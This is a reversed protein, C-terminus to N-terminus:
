EKLEIRPLKRVDHWVMHVTYNNGEILIMEGERPTSKLRVIGRLPIDPDQEPEGAGPEYFFYRYRKGFIVEILKLVLLLFILGCLALIWTPM